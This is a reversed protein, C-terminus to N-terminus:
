GPVPVDFGVILGVAGIACVVSQWDTDLAQWRGVVPDVAIRRITTAISENKAPSERVPMTSSQVNEASRM